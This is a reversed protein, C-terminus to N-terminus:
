STAGVKAIFAEILQQHTDADISEVVARDVATSTLRAIEARLEDSGRGRAAAIDAEARAQLDAIEADLRARSETRMAAAQQDAEALLREREAEIDGKAKRIEAAEAEASVKNSRSADLEGQIKDTRKALGKKLAPGAFKILAGIIIVSALGGYIIESNEPLIPNHTVIGKGDVTVEEPEESDAALVLNGFTLHYSM